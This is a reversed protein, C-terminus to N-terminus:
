SSFIIMNLSFESPRRGREHDDIEDLYDVGANDNQRRGTPKERRVVGARAAEGGVEWWGAGKDEIVTHQSVTARGVTRGATASQGTTVTM